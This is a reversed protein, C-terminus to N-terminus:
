HNLLMLAQKEMRLLYETVENDITSLRIQKIAVPEGTILSKGLYVEGTSGKGLIESKNIQYERSIPTFAQSQSM